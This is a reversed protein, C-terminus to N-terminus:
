AKGNVTTIGRVNLDLAVSRFSNGATVKDVMERILAAESECVATYGAEYGFARQGGNSKGAQAAQLKAAKV